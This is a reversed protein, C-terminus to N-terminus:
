RFATAPEIGVARRMAIVSGLLCLVLTFLAHLPPVWWPLYSPLSSDRTGALFLSLLSFGAVIGIMAVFLTQLFVILLVDRGRAGLARLMAYDNRKNLVNTYLSLSIIVVGVLAGMLTSFGFSGGIGTNRLYYMKTMLSLEDSAYVDAKPLIRRLLTVLTRKQSPEVAKVLLGSCRDPAVAAIERAKELNVFVINGGFGRIGKTVAAVRVREGNIEFRDGISPYDYTSLELYEVTIGKYDLLDAGSGTEFRNPGGALRPRKIGVIQVAQNNGDGRRLLGAGLVIPEVWRVGRVGAIRDRYAVPITGAANVNDSNKSLVWIDANSVDVLVSMFNVLGFFIALQQGVLFIIAIVGAISGLATARDHFLMKIAAITRM